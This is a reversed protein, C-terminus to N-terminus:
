VSSTCSDLDLFFESSVLSPYSRGGGKEKVWGPLIALVDKRVYHPLAPLPVDTLFVVCHTQPRTVTAGLTCLSRAPSLETSM